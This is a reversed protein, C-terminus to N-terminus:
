VYLIKIIPNMSVSGYATPKFVKNCKKVNGKIYFEDNDNMFIFFNDGISMDEVHLDIPIEELSISYYTYDYPLLINRGIQYIKGNSTLVIVTFMTNYMKIADLPISNLKIFKRRYQNMYEPSGFAFQAYPLFGLFNIFGDNDICSLSNPGASIYKINKLGEILQPTKYITNSYDTYDFPIRGIIYVTGERTLILGYHDSISLQIINTMYIERGNTYTSIRGLLHLRNDFTLIMSSANSTSMTAVNNIMPKITSNSKMVTGYQNEGLGYLNHDIDLIYSYKDAAAVNVVYSQNYITTPQDLPLNFGLTSGFGYLDGHKVILGHCNGTAIHSRNLQYKCVDLIKKMTLGMPIDLKRSIFINFRDTTCLRNLRSSLSCLTIIDDCRLNNMISFIADDHLEELFEVSQQNLKNLYTLIRIIRTKSVSPLRLRSALKTLSDDSSLLISLLNMTPILNTEGANTINVAIIFDAISDPMTTYRNTVIIDWADNYAQYRDTSVTFGNDTLFQAINTFAIDM